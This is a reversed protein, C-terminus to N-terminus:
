NKRSKVLIKPIIKLLLYTRSIFSPFCNVNKLLRIGFIIGKGIRCFWLTGSMLFPKLAMLAASAHFLGHTARCEPVAKDQCCAHETLFCSYIKPWGTYVGSEKPRIEKKRTSM